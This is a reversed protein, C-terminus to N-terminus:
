KQLLVPQKELIIPYMITSVKEGMGLVKIDKSTSIIYFRSNICEPVSNIRGAQMEKLNPFSDSAYFFDATCCLDTYSLRPLTASM